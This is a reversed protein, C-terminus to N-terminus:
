RPPEWLIPVSGDWEGHRLIRAVRLQTLTQEYDQGRSLFAMRTVAWRAVSLEPNLEGLEHVGFQENLSELLETAKKTGIGPCGKYNDTVDGVLAQYYHLWEAFDPTVNVVGREPHAPNYLRGPIQAMDKDISCIIRDGLHDYAPSTAMIGMVDDAECRPFVVCEFLDQLRTRIYDFLLLPPQKSERDPRHAKYSPLLDHRWYTGQRRGAGSPIDSLTVIVNRSKTAHTWKNVLSEIRDRAVGKDPICVPGDGFDINTQAVVAVRWILVDGDILLTRPIM